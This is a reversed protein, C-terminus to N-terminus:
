PRTRSSPSGVLPPLTALLADQIGARRAIMGLRTLQDHTVSKDAQIVLTLPAANESVVRALRLGLETESVQENRFYLRGDLDVAVNVAPGAPGPLEDAVPLRVRIGSTYTVPGIMVFMVLLFFVCAYASYDPAGKLIRVNRPFKM